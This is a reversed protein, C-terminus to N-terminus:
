SVAKGMSSKPLFRRAAKFDELTEQVLGDLNVETKQIESQGLRSFALLDDILNRMRTASESITTLHRFSKESLSPGSDKQPLDV